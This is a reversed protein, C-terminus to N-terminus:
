GGRDAWSPPPLRSIPGFSVVRDVVRKDKAGDCVTIMSIREESPGLDKVRRKKQKLKQVVGGELTNYTKGYKGGGHLSGEMLAEKRQGALTLMRRGLRLILSRGLSRPASGRRRRRPSAPCTLGELSLDLPRHARTIRQFNSNILLNCFNTGPLALPEPSNSPKLTQVSPTLLEDAYPPQREQLKSKWSNM